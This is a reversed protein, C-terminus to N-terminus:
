KKMLVFYHAGTYRPHYYEKYSFEKIEFDKLLKEVDKRSAYFHPIGKEGGQTKIITNESVRTANNAKYATSNKSNFTIFAEGGGKLVRKIESLSKQIGEDDQHYITHFALVCDFFSDQYPLKIMDALKIEISLNQDKITKSLKDLGEKGLDLAFVEFGKKAFLISHRGIGCGLDLINKFGKGKWRSLLPYIEGAPEEWSVDNTSNWTRPKSKIM